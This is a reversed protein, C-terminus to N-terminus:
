KKRRKKERLYFARQNTAHRCHRDCYEQRPDEAEFPRSCGKCRARVIRRETAAFYVQLWMATLLSDCTYQPLIRVSPPSSKRSRQRTLAGEILGKVDPVPSLRVGGLQENLRAALTGKARLLLTGDPDLDSIEATRNEAPFFDRLGRFDGEREAKSAAGLLKVMIGVGAADWCFLDFPLGAGGSALFPEASRPLGYREVFWVAAEEVEKDNATLLAIAAFKVYADPADALPEYERGKGKCALVLHEEDYIMRRVDEGADLPVPMTSLLPTETRGRLLRLPPEVVLRCRQERVWTFRPAEYELIQNSVSQM